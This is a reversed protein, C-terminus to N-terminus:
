VVQYVGIVQEAIRRHNHLGIGIQRNRNKQRHHHTSFSFRVDGNEQPNHPNQPTKSASLYKTSVLHSAGVQPLTPHISKRRFLYPHNM